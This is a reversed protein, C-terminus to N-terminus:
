FKFPFDVPEGQLKHRPFTWGTILGAICAAAYTSKFQDTRCSVSATKGSPLITWRMVLKGSVLPERKKQEALCASLAPKNALVVGIIDSQGIFEPLMADASGPAPPVYVSKGGARGAVPERPKPTGGGFERDFDDGSPDAMAIVIPRAEVARPGHKVRQTAEKQVEPAAAVVAPAPPVPTIAPARTDVALPASAPIPPTSTGRSLLLVVVVLLGLLAVGGMAMSARVLGPLQAWSIEVRLPTVAAVQPAWTQDSVPEPPAAPKPPKPRSLAALDERALTALLSATRSAVQEKPKPALVAILEPVRSLPMWEDFGGRWCLTDIGLEGASWLEEVQAATLPGLQRLELGLYWCAGPDPRLRSQIREVLGKPAVLADTAERWGRIKLEVLDTM